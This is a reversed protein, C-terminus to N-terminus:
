RRSLDAAPHGQIRSVPTSWTPPERTGGPPTIQSVELHTVGGGGWVCRGPGALYCGGPHLASTFWWRIILM